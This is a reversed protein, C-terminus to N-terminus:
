SGSPAKRPPPNEMVRSPELQVLMALHELVSVRQLNELDASGGLCLAPQFGYMQDPALRGLRKLARAFLPKGANDYFDAFRRTLTVLLVDFASEQQSQSRRPRPPRDSFVLGHAVSIRLTGTERGWAWLSGFANRAIVTFEDDNALPTDSLLSRLISEYDAPDVFWFLGDGYGCLGQETWWEQLRRPVLAEYRAVSRPSLDTRDHAPGFHALFHAFVENM